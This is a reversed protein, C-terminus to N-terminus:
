KRLLKRKSNNIYTRDTSDIISPDLACLNYFYIIVLFSKRSEEPKSNSVKRFSAPVNLIIDKLGHIKLSPKVALSFFKM